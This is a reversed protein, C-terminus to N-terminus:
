RIVNFLFGYTGSSSSNFAADLVAPTIPNDLIDGNYLLQPATAGATRQFSATTISTRNEVMGYFAPALSLLGTNTGVNVRATLPSGPSNGNDVVVKMFYIGGGGGSFSLPQPLIVQVRGTTSLDLTLGTMIPTSPYLGLVEDIDPEYFGFTFTDNSSTLTSVYFTIASYSHIGLDYFAMFVSNGAQNATSNTTSTWGTGQTFPVIKRHNMQTPSQLDGEKLRLGTPNGLGDTINQFSSTIGSTSDELKLLGDYTDQITNGSLSAM